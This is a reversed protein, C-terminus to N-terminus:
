IGAAEDRTLRMHHIPARPEELFQKSLGHKPETCLDWAYPGRYPGIRLDSISRVCGYKLLVLGTVAIVARSGSWLRPNAVPSQPVKCPLTGWGM